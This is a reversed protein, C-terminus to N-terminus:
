AVEMLVATRPKGAQQAFGRHVTTVRDKV